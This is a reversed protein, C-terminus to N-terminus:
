GYCFEIRVKNCFTYMKISALMIYFDLHLSVVSHSENSEESSKTMKNNGTCKSATKKNSLILVCITEIINSSHIHVMNRSNDMDFTCWSRRSSYVLKCMIPATSPLGPTCSSIIDHLSVRVFNTKTHYKPGYSGGQLLIIPEVPCKWIKSFKAKGKKKM